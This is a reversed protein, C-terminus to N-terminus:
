WNTSTLEKQMLKKLETKSDYEKREAKANLCSFTVIVDKGIEPDGLKFGNYGVKEVQSSLIEALQNITLRKVDKVAEYIDANEARDVEKAYLNTLRGLHNAKQLIKSETSEDICFRKKSSM